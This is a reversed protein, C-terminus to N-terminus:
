MATDKTLVNVDAALQSALYAMALALALAAGAVVVRYFRGRTRQILTLGTSRLAELQEASQIAGLGSGEGLGAHKEVTAFHEEEALQPEVTAFREEEVLQSEVIAVHEENSLHREVTATLEEGTSEFEVTAIRDEGGGRRAAAAAARPEVPARIYNIALHADVAIAEIDSHPLM